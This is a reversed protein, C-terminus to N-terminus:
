HVSLTQKVHDSFENGLELELVGLITDQFDFADAVLALVFLLLGLVFIVFVVISNNTNLIKNQKDYFVYM